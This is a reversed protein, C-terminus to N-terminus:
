DAVLFSNPFSRALARQSQRAASLKSYPGVQVRWFNASNARVVRATNGQNQLKTRLADANSRQSFAGIQVFFRGTMDDGTYSPVTALATIRVRAIGPGLMGLRQAGTHTLDIIRGKVFPGRDNVVVDISKDNQLNTVRLRTGFPLLKHAATMGYMNYVEGNATRKGHFDKGYWSALGEETYGHASAMTTYTKGRITYTHPKAPATGSPTSKKPDSTPINKKGCGGMLMVAILAMAYLLVLHRTSYSPASAYM